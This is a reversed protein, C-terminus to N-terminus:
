RARFPSMMYQWDAATVPAGGHQARLMKIWGPCTFEQVNSSYLCPLADIRVSTPDAGLERTLATRAMRHLSAIEAGDHRKRADADILVLLQGRVAYTEALMQRQEDTMSLIANNHALLISFQSELVRFSVADSPHQGDLVKYACIIFLLDADAVSTTIFGKSAGADRYDAVLKEFLPEAERRLKASHPFLQQALLPPLRPKEWQMFFIHRARWYSDSVNGQSTHITMSSHQLANQLRANSSQKEQNDRGVGLNYDNDFAKEMAPFIDGTNDSCEGNQYTYDTMGPCDSARAAGVCLTSTVILAIVMGGFIRASSAKEMLQMKSLLQKRDGAFGDGSIRAM